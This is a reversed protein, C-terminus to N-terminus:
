RSEAGKSPLNTGYTALVARLFPFESQPKEPDSQFLLRVVGGPKKYELAWQDIIEGNGPVNGTPKIYGVYSGHSHVWVGGRGLLREAVAGKTGPAILKNVAEVQDQPAAEKSQWVAILAEERSPTRETRPGCGILMAIMLLLAGSPIAWLARNLERSTDPIVM